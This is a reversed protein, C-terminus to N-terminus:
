LVFCSKGKNLVVGQSYKMEMEGFGCSRGLKEDEIEKGNLRRTVDNEKSMSLLVDPFVIKKIRRRTGVRFSRISFDGPVGQVHVREEIPIETCPRFGREVTQESTVLLYIMEKLMVLVGHTYGFVVNM